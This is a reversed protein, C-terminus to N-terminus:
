NFTRLYLSSFSFFTILDKLFCLFYRSIRRSFNIFLNVKLIIFPVIPLAETWLRTFYFHSKPKVTLISVQTLLFVTLISITYLSVRRFRSLFYLCRIYFFVAVIRTVRIGYKNPFHCRLHPIKMM